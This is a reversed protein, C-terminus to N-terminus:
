KKAPPEALPYGNRCNSFPIWLRCHPDNTKREARTLIIGGLEPTVTISWGQEVSFTQSMTGDIRAYDKLHLESLKM